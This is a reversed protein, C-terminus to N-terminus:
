ATCLRDPRQLGQREWGEMGLRFLENQKERGFMAYEKGRKLRSAATEVLMAEHDDDALLDQEFKYSRTECNHWGTGPYRDAEEWDGTIYHLVGGHAVLVVQPDTEGDSVLKCIKRRLFIRLDHARAKIADSHPSYRYGLEKLNWGEQVLSLDVSWHKKAVIDRLISPDSGIDCGDDSTEQADPLALIQDACKGNAALAPGFILAATHLTRVMPSATVLSINSQIAFVEDRLRLCQEQGLLSLDPDALTYDGAVNHMGQAHRICHIVPAM